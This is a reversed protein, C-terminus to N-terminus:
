KKKIMLFDGLKRLEDLLCFVTPYIIALLLSNLSYTNPSGFTLTFNIGIAMVPWFFEFFTKPLIDLGIGYPTKLFKWFRILIM